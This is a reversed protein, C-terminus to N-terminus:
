SGAGPAIALERLIEARHENLEPPTHTARPPTESMRIPCGVTRAGDVGTDVILGRAQTHPADVVEPMTKILSTPIGLKIATDVWEAADRGAFLQRLHEFLETKNNIRQQNSAFAPDAALDPRGAAECFQLWMRDSSIGIYFERDRARFVGYPALLPFDGGFKAPIVGTAMFESLHNGILYVASDYLNVDIAQGLGTQDRHRLAVMIAFAGHGGTVLDISSPGARVSGGGREGTISMHGAEAQMLMDFGPRASMPGTQGYGSVSCYILAPNHERLAEYGIGLRKAVGPAYSEIVVDAGTALKTAIELDEDQKLDLVVSRKNRNMSVFTPTINANRGLRVTGWQRTSDGSPPEIKVVDAGFDALLMSCSPGAANATFDIVRIGSLPLGGVKSEENAQDDSV